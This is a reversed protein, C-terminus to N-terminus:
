TSFLECCACGFGHDSLAGQLVDDSGGADAQVRPLLYVQGELRGRHVGPYHETAGIQIRDHFDGGAGLIDTLGGHRGGQDITVDLHVGDLVQKRGHCAQADVVGVDLQRRGFDRDHIATGTGEHEQNLRSAQFLLFRRLLEDAHQAFHRHLLAVLAGGEQGEVAELHAELDIEIVRHETTAGLGGADVEGASGEDLFHAACPGEPEHAVDL